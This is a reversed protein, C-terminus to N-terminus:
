SLYWSNSNLLLLLLWSELPGLPLCVLSNEERTVLSGIILQFVSIFSINFFFIFVFLLFILYYSIYLFYLPAEQLSILLWPCCFLLEWVETVLTLTTTLPIRQSLECHKLIIYFFSFFNFMIVLYILVDIIFTTHITMLISHELCTDM